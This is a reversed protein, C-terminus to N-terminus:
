DRYSRYWGGKDLHSFLYIGRAFVVQASRSVTQLNANVLADWGM